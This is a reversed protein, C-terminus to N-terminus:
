ENHQLHQHPSFRESAHDSFARETDPKMMNVIVRGDIIVADVNSTETADLSLGPQDNHAARTM